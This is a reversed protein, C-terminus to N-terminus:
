GLPRCTRLDMTSRVEVTNTGRKVAVVIKDPDATWTFPKPRQKTQDSLTRSHIDAAAHINEHSASAVAASNSLLVSRDSTQRKGMPPVRSGGARQRDSRAPPHTILETTFFQM